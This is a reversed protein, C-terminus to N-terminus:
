QALRERLAVIRRELNEVAAKLAPPNDKNLNCEKFAMVVFEAARSQGVGLEKINADHWEYYQKQAAKRDSLDLSPLPTM